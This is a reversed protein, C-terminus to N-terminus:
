ARRSAPSLRRVSILRVSATVATIAAPTIVSTTERAAVASPVVVVWDLLLWVTTLAAVLEALVALVEVFFVLVESVVAAAGVVEVALLDESLPLEPLDLESL